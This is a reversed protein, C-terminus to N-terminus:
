NLIFKEIAIFFAMPIKISIASFRCIAESSISIKVINLKAIWSCLFHREM